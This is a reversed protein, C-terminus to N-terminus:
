KEACWDLQNKQQYEEIIRYVQSLCLDFRKALERHNKGNFAQWIEDHKKKNVWAAAKPIYVPEGGHNERVLEVVERSIEDIEDHHLAVREKLKNAIFERMDILFQPYNAAMKIFDKSVYVLLSIPLLHYCFDFREYAQFIWRSRNINVAKM